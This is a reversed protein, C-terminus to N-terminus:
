KVEQLSPLLDSKQVVQFASNSAEPAWRFEVVLRRGSAWVKVIEVGSSASVAVVMESAFDVAPKDGPRGLRRWLEALESPSRAAHAAPPAPAAPAAKPAASLGGIAGESRRSAFAKNKRQAPAPEEKKLAEERDGYPLVTVPAQAMGAAAQLDGGRVAASKEQAIPAGGASAPADPKLLKPKSGAGLPVPEHFGDMAIRQRQFNEAMARMYARAEDRTMPGADEEPARAAAGPPVIQEIGLKKREQELHGQLQENTFDKAEPASLPVGRARAAPRPRQPKDARADELSDAATPEAAKMASSAGGFAGGSGAGGGRLGSPAPAAMRAVGPLLLTGEQSLPALDRVREEVRGPGKLADYGVFCVAVASLGFALAKAPMPLLFRPREAAAEEEHRRRRELRQLFGVPLARRPSAALLRTLGKLDKLERGCSECKEVHTEVMRRDAEPLRGDIFESLLDTIHEKM